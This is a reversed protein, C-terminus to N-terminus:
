QMEGWTIVAIIWAVLMVGATVGSAFTAPDCGCIDRDRGM